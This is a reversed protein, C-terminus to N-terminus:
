KFFEHIFQNKFQFLLYRFFFPHRLTPKLNDSFSSFEIVIGNAMPTLNLNPTIGCCQVQQPASTTKKIHM